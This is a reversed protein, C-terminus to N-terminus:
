APPHTARLTGAASALLQALQAAYLFRIEGRGGEAFRVAGSTDAELVGERVAAELVRRVHVRSVDFRKALGAISLHMALTPPFEDDAGGDASLLHWALQSGADHHMIVRMLAPMPTSPNGAVGRLLGMTQLRIFVAATTSDDLADRVSAAAPEILCAADLAAQLQGCWASLFGSTPVYRRAGAATASADPELYKLQQLARLVARARGRSLFGSAICTDKLKPLTLTSDFHLYLATMAAVYRGADKCVSAFARDSELSALMNVALARAARAARPHALVRAAGESPAGAYAEWQLLDNGHHAASESIVRDARALSQDASPGRTPTHQM